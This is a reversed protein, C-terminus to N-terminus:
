LSRVVSVQNEGTRQHLFVLACGSVDFSAADAMTFDDLRRGICTHVPLDDAIERSAQVVRLFEAVVRGTLNKFLQTAGGLAANGIIVAHGPFADLLLVADEPRTRLRPMRSRRAEVFSVLKAMRIALRVKLRHLPTRRGFLRIAFVRNDEGGSAHNRLIKRARLGPADASQYVLIGLGQTLNM